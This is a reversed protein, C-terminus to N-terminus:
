PRFPCRWTGETARGSYQRAESHRGYDALNPNLGGDLRMERDRIQRQLGDFRGDERLHEFQEHANFALVPWAFRRAARSADPHMGVIFFANGSFSFSFGPDAPDASVAPDWPHLPADLDHLRQLQSWLAREFGAEGFGSRERFVAIFSTFDSEFGAREAAFAFLDRALGATVVPDDMRAYTGFRYLGRRISSKAGLCSFADDLVFGRFAEHAIRTFSDVPATELLRALEGGTNGHYSSHARAADSDFPNRWASELHELTREAASM